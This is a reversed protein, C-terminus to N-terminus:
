KCFSDDPFKRCLLDKMKQQEDKVKKNEEKLMKNELELSAIKRNQDENEGFFRHYLEKVAEILPAV